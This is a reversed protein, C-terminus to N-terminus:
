NSRTLHEVDAIDQPRGSARKNAKLSELDIFCLKLQGLFVETRKAYCTEFDVGVLTTILDIRNPPYGLQVFTDPEEFDVAKLGLSGMGFTDLADILHTTNEHDTAIWVDLDKTHRPHGHIAVAMGGVILHRVGATNLSEIFERLDRSLLAM